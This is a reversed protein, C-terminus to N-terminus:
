KMEKSLTQVASKLAGDWGAAYALQIQSELARIVQIAKVSMADRRKGLCGTVEDIDSPQM